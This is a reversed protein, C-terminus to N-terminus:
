IAIILPIANLKIFKINWKSKIFFYVFLNCSKLSKENNNKM